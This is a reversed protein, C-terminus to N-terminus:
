RAVGMEGALIYFNYLFHVMSGAIIAVPYYKVGLRQTLLCVVATFVFHAVLPILLLDASGMAEILIINSVVSLSLYLLLKEGIFFGLASAAALALLAKTSPVKKNELLTAIGISKAVEEVIVCLVLLASLFAMPPLSVPVMLSLIAIVMQVMFVAPILLLSLLAISVYVHSRDITLYIADAAKRYLPGFGMLYEENFIRVGVLVSLGFVLYMPATSLAYEVPGFGEGRYMQVALTLPSIYSVNNIGTFLAPMILYGTVFTIAAMSFFTQDKFTRYVLAVMLYIAFIFLIVPLFIALALFVNGGLVLTMAVVLALSFALYPLMKGIIIDFPTVPTSMLINLKRNTKEEMFSSNFFIGLFLVPVIYLFALVVQSLPVPPDMLSPIIVERDSVFEAKFKTTSGNQLENIKEKVALSTDPAQPATSAVPSPGPTASLYGVEVRLPFSLNVDYQRILRSTEAKDLYQKLAGAAYRSREDRRTYATEGDLYLDISGDDLKQIGEANDLTLVKFRGDGIQPGGPSVGITYIDRGIVLGQQAIIYSVALSLIVLGIIVLRSGGSFRARFRGLERKSM